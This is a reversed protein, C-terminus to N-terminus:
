CGVVLVWLTWWPALELFELWTRAAYFHQLIGCRARFQGVTSSIAQPRDSDALPPAGVRSPGREM